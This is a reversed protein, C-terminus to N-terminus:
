RTAAPPRNARSAQRRPPSTKIFTELAGEAQARRKPRASLEHRGMARREWSPTQISVSVRFEERLWQGPDSLRWRVVGHITPIPRRDIQAALAQRHVEALRAAEGRSMAERVNAIAMMRWAKGRGTERVALRRLGSASVEARIRLGRAGM